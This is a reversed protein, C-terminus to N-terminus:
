DDNIENQLHSFHDNKSRYQLGVNKNKIEEEKNIGTKQTQTLAPPDKSYDGEKEKKESLSSAMRVAAAAHVNKM